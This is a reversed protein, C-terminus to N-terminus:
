FTLLCFNNKKFFVFMKERIPNKFQTYCALAKIELGIEVKEELMETVSVFMCCLCSGPEEDTMRGCHRYGLM